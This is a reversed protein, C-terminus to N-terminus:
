KESWLVDDLKAALRRAQDLQQDDLNQKGALTDLSVRLGRALKIATAFKFDRNESRIRCIASKAVGSRRSLESINIGKQQMLKFLM